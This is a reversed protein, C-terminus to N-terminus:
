SLKKTPAYSGGTSKSVPWGSSTWPMSKKSLNFAKSGTLIGAMKKNWAAEQLLALRKAEGSWRINMAELEAQKANEALVELPSGEIGAGSAAVQTRASALARSSEARSKAETSKTQQATVKAEAKAQEARQEMTKGQIYAGVVTGVMNM